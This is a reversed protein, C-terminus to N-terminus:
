HALALEPAEAVFDVARGVVAPDTLIRRHGLGNAWRLTVHDGAQEMERANQSSVERDEDAHMVLTPVPLRALQISCIFESLKSGTIRKVQDSLVARTRPGLRFYGEFMEFLKPMSNPASILVLRNTAVPAIGRVSGVAASVAAAGGFSHGVIAAFPGFWEAATALADVALAMNLRRGSSHGHGPLDLSVVRYGRNRFGEILVRMHETRSHWGHVLLVTGITPLGEAPKFVFAMAVGARTTLRHWRADVMLPAARDVARQEGESLRVPDATRCFLEFALRGAARPMVHEAIGFAGRIVKV